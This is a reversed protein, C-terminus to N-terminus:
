RRRANKFASPRANLAGSHSTDNESYMRAFRGATPHQLTNFGHLSKINLSRDFFSVLPAGCPRADLYFIEEVIGAGIIGGTYPLIYADTVDALVDRYTAQWDSASVWLTKASLVKIGPHLRQVAVLARDYLPDNLMGVTATLYAM